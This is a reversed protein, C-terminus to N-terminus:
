LATRQVEMAQDRWAAQDPADTAHSLVHLEPPALGLHRALEDAWMLRLTAPAVVLAPFPRLEALM